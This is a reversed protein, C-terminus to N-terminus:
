YSALRAQGSMSEWASRLLLLLPLALGRFWGDIRDSKRALRDLVLLAALAVDL